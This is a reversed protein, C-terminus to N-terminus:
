SAAWERAKAALRLHREIQSDYLGEFGAVMRDFSFEQEIRTRASQGLSSAFGPRDMLELVSRALAAADGPPILVGSVGSTILEPIGGVNTAVVPLGAAMAEIVANPFAESRSPLVFLDSTSLLAPVDNCQGLFRFRRAVGRAEAREILADRLPGDGGIFFEAEPERALIAPAADILADHGKEARLNAVMAIKRIIHRDRPPLFATLDVGNPILTIREPAIGEKTLQDRAARSNAVLGHATRYAFAQAALQARTKDGTVVERRSGIRVPVRAMAGGTLGFVNAYLDCTHVLKADLSRCWRAFRLLQRAAAPRGFGGLPFVDIPIDPPMKSLLSGRKHFCAVHVRFHRADLRRVLEVMQRETGGIDFSTLVVVVPYPREVRM